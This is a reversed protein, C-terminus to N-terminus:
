TPYFIEHYTIYAIDFICLFRKMTVTTYTQELEAKENLTSHLRPGPYHLRYLLESRAPRDPSRIGTPTLNEAGM